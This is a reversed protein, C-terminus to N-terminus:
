DAGHGIGGEAENDAPPAGDVLTIRYRGAAPRARVAARPAYLDPHFRFPDGSPLSVICWGNDLGTIDWDEIVDMAQLQNLQERGSATPVACRRLNKGHRAKVYTRSGEDFLHFCFCTGFGSLISAAGHEGYREALQDVNQIGAIIKIGLSRGFNLAQDLYTLPPIVPLEDLIFFVDGGGRATRGLAQRLALDLMVTYMADLTCGYEADYAIFVKRGGGHAVHSRMSFSGEQAFCGTFMENVVSLLPSLYSQTTASGRALVYMQLWQLDPYGQVLEAIHDPDRAERLIFAKLAANNLTQWSATGASQQQRIMILTLGVFLDRAGCPFAPNQSSRIAKDFLTTAVQRMLEGDPIAEPDAMLDMFLNWAQAGEGHVKGIVVDGPTFFAQEYDGKADFFICGDAEGLAHVVGRAIHHLGNTKGSGTSGVALVHRSQVQSSLYLDGSDRSPVRVGAREVARPPSDLLRQGEIITSYAMMRM